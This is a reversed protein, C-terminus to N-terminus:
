KKEIKSLGNMYPRLAEPIIVSGDKQQYNELIAVVTRGIAIGSGNLTHVYELKAKPKPRYRINARRSQFDEFNSCSSIERYQQQHPIWVELDYTKSAAFGLDGSCLTVVRYHLNLKKLIVEADVTLKELEDYSQDPETFKVLEVKNFQHNRILGRVDKGYSGAESRFCPTYGVYNLPLDDKELIEGLHINTIPVEGTPVLYYDHDKLKFLDEEFKPLQGTGYLSDSNVMFPTLVELYGHEKTHLDLMFNILARELLAGAGRYLAFRAGTMKAAREFDLIDLDKGIDWHPKPEFDFSPQEGFVREVRNDKEEKGVPVTDHATNPIELLILKLSLEVKKIKDEYEKIRSSVLKMENRLESVDKKKKMMRGIEESTVNRQHKLTESEQLLHKREADLQTFQDLSFDIGREKMKRQIAEINDRVFHFDLM